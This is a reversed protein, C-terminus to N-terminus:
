SLDVCPYQAQRKVTCLARGLGIIAIHDTPQMFQERIFSVPKHQSGLKVVFILPSFHQATTSSSVQPEQMIREKEEKGENMKECAKKLRHSRLLLEVVSEVCLHFHKGSASSSIGIPVLPSIKQTTILKFDAPESPLM